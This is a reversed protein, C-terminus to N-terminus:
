RQKSRKSLLFNLLLPIVVLLSFYVIQWFANAIQNPEDNTMISSISLTSYLITNISLYSIIAKNFSKRIAILLLCIIASSVFATIFSGIYPLFSLNVWMIFLLPPYTAIVSICHSTIIQSLRNQNKQINVFFVILIDLILLSLLIISENKGWDFCKSITILTYIITAITTFILLTTRYNIPKTKVKKM